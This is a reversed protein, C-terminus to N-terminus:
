QETFTAPTSLQASQQSEPFTREEVSGPEGMLEAQGNNYSLMVAGANGARLTLTNEATWSRQSGEPLVGQFATEGDVNVRLWSRDTLTIEVRVQDESVEVEPVPDPTTETTATTTTSSDTATTPSDTSPASASESPQDPVVLPSENPAIAAEPTWSASRNLLYSLGSVAAIILLVYAAYLHIPRLQAAPSDKWSPKIARIDPETPFADAIAGGDLGLGNAYRGLLAKVYVPEPLQQLNGQEIAFLLRRQIRTKEAVDELTLDARERHQRLYDGIETLIQKQEQQLSVVDKSM